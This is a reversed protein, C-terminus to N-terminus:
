YMTDYGCRSPIDCVGVLKNSINLDKEIVFKPHKSEAILNLASKYNLVEDRMHKVTKLSRGCYDHIDRM